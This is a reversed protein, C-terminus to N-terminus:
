LISDEKGVRREESRRIVQEAEPFHSDGALILGLNIFAQTYQPNNETAKRFLEEAEKNEGQQGCLVGLNNQAEAYGPDLAILDSSCVDSSWDRSFRTH